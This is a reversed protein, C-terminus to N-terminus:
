RGRVIARSWAFLGAVPGTEYSLDLGREAIVDEVIRAASVCHVVVEHVLEFEDGLAAEVRDAEVLMM